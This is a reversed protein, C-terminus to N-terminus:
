FLDNWITGDFCRLKATASDFYIDGVSPASPATGPKLNLLTSVGVGGTAGDLVLSTFWTSGDSSVKVSFGDNGALGMEARGSWNSQFLLSATEASSAKNVKIQHGTGDHSFLSADASVTLRNTADFVANIGLGDLNEYNSTLNIWTPSSYVRMEGNLVGWARWGDQPTVFLWGGNRFSALQGDAGSWDGTPTDGLAWTEGEQPAVPPTTADFDQVALQVIMDLLEIADNHTIHKQAQAPQIYPLDLSTSRESM